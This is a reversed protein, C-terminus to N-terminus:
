LVVSPPRSSIQQHVEINRGEFLGQAELWAPQLIATNFRGVLVITDGALDGERVAV